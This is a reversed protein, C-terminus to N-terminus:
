NLFRQPENRNLEKLFNEKNVSLIHGDEILVDVKKFKDIFKQKNNMFFDWRRFNETEMIKKLIKRESKSIEMKM